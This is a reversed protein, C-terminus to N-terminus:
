GYGVVGGLTPILTPTLSWQAMHDLAGPVIHVEAVFWPMPTLGTSPSQLFTAAAFEALMITRM